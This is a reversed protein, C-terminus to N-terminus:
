GKLKLVLIVLWGLAFAWPLLNRPSLFSDLRMLMRDQVAAAFVPPYDQWRRNASELHEDWYALLNRIARDGSIFAVKSSISILFGFAILVYVLGPISSSVDALSGLAAFLLGQVVLLWNMRNNLLDDEHAIMTRVAQAYEHTKLPDNGDM